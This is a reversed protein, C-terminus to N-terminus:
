SGTPTRRSLVDGDSSPTSREGSVPPRELEDTTPAQVDRSKVGEGALPPSAQAGEAELYIRAVVESDSENINQCCLWFQEDAGPLVEFDGFKARVAECAQELTDCQLEVPEVGQLCVRYM